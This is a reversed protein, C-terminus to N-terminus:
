SLRKVVRNPDLLHQNHLGLVSTLFGFLKLVALEFDMRVNNFPSETGDFQKHCDRCFLQTKKELDPPELNHALKNRLSNLAKAMGFVWHDPQPCVSRVLALTAAFMMRTDDLERPNPLRRDLYDQLVQELALQSKLIAFTLDGEEYKLHGLYRALDAHFDEYDFGSM